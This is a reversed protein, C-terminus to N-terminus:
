WAQIIPPVPEPFLEVTRKSERSQLKALPFFAKLQKTISM